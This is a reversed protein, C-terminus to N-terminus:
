DQFGTTTTTQPPNFRMCIFPDTQLVSEYSDGIPEFPVERLPTKAEPVKLDLRAIHFIRDLWDGAKGPDALPATGLEHLQCFTNTGASHAPSIALALALALAPLTTSKGGM